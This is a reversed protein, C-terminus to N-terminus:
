KPCHHNCGGKGKCDNQGACAHSDTQCGGKGKCDNKGKCCAKAEAAAAAPQSGAGPSAAPKENGCGVAGLMLGASAATAIKRSLNIAM